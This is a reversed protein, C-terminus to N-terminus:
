RGQQMLARVMPSIAQNQRYRQQLQDPTLERPTAINESRAGTGPEIKPRESANYIDYATLAGAVLPFARGAVRAVGPAYRAALEGMKETGKIAGYATGGAATGGALAEAMSGGRQAVNGTGAEVEGQSAEADGRIADYGLMAAVVAAGKPGLDDLAKSIRELYKPGPKVGLEKAVATRAQENNRIVDKAAKINDAKRGADGVGAARAASRAREANPRRKEPAEESEPAALQTRGESPKQPPTVDRAQDAALAQAMRSPPQNRRPNISQSEITAIDGANPSVGPNNASALGKEAVGVGTGAALASLATMIDQQV